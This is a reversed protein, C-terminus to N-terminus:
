LVVQSIVRQIQRPERFPVTQVNHKLIYRFTAYFNLTFIVTVRNRADPDIPIQVFINTCLESPSHNALNFNEVNVATVRASCM